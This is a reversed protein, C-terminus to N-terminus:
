ELLCLPVQSGRMGELFLFGERCKSTQGSHPHLTASPLHDSDRHGGRPRPPLPVASTGEGAM